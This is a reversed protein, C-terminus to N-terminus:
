KKNLQKSIWKSAMSRFQKELASPVDVHVSVNNGYEKAKFISAIEEKTKYSPKLGKLLNDTIDDKHEDYLWKQMNDTLRVLRIASGQTITKNDYMDIFEPILNDNISFLYQITRLATGSDESIQKAVEVGKSGEEILSRRMFIVEERKQKADLTRTAFNTVKIIYQAQSYTLGKKIIADIKTYKEDQTSNYIKVFSNTRSHGALIMYKNGIFGYNCENSDYLEKLTEKDIEWVIIPTMLGGDIITQQLKFEEDPSLKSFLNWERNNPAAYLDSIPLKSVQLDAVDASISKNAMVYGEKRSKDNKKALEENLLQEVINVKQKKVIGGNSKKLAM